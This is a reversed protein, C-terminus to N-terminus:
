TDEQVETKEKHRCGKDRVAVLLPKGLPAVQPALPVRDRQLVVREDHELDFLLCTHSQQFAHHAPTTSKIGGVDISSKEGKQKERQPQAVCKKVAPQCVAQTFRLFTPLLSRRSSSINRVLTVAYWTDM